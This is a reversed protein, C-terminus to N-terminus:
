RPTFAPKTSNYQKINIYKYKLLKHLIWRSKWLLKRDRGTPRVALPRPIIATLRIMEELNLAWVNKHFYVRAATQVGFVGPGFEIENLYLSFIRNKSLKKELRWTIFVERIKRFISKETSLYLNKALQQTITSGGRKYAGDKINELISERLEAYDLGHHRYFSADESIRVCKKLLDPIKSFRVLYHRVRYKKHNKKATKIRYEILATTKPIHNTLYSVDPLSVYFYLLYGWIFLMAIIFYRITQKRFLTRLKIHAKQSGNGLPQYYM